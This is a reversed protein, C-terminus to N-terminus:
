EWSFGKRYRMKNLDNWCRTKVRNFSTNHILTGRSDGFVLCMPVISAERLLFPARMTEHATIVVVKHMNDRVSVEPTSTRLCNPVTASPKTWTHPKWYFNYSLYIMSLLLNFCKSGIIYYRTFALLSFKHFVGIMKLAIM